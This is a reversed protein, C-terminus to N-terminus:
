RNPIRVDLSFGGSGLAQMRIEYPVYSQDRYIPTVRYWVVQGSAVANAVKLENERITKQNITKLVIALNARRGSGGLSAAWLHTRDYWNGNILGGTRWGKPNVNPASGKPMNQTLIGRVGTPRGLEDLDGYVIIGRQAVGTAAPAASSGPGGGALGGRSGVVKAGNPGEEISEGEGRAQWIKSVPWAFAGTPDAFNVPNRNAYAYPQGSFAEFPDRSIFQQTESDYHRARLYLL